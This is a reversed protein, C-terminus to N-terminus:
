KIGLIAADYVDEHIYTASVGIINYDPNLLIDRHGWDSTGDYDIYETVDNDAADKSTPKDVNITSPMSYAIIESHATTINLQQAYKAFISKGDTDYHTFNQTIDHARKDAIRTLQTDLTLPQLGRQAREQNVKAVFENVYAQNSFKFSTDDNNTNRNGSTKVTTSGSNTPAKYSVKKLWGRWVWGTHGSDTKFKYYVSKKGNVTVHSAYYGTVYTGYAGLKAGTKRNIKGNSYIVAKRNVVRYDSDKINEYYRFKTKASADTANTTIITGAIGASAAIAAVMKTLNSM